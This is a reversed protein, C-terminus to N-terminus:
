TERTELKKNGGDTEGRRPRTGLPQEVADLYQALPLVLPWVGCLGHESGKGVLGVMAPYFGRAIVDELL